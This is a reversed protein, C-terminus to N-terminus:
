TLRWSVKKGNDFEVYLSDLRYEGDGVAVLCKRYVTIHAQQSNSWKNFERLSGSMPNVINSFNSDVTINNLNMPVDNGGGSQPREPYEKFKTSLTSAKYSISLDAATFAAPLYNQFRYLDKGLSETANFAKLAKHAEKTSPIFNGAVDLTISM